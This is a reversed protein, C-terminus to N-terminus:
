IGSLYFAIWDDSALNNNVIENLYIYLFLFLAQFGALPITNQYNKKNILKFLFHFLLSFVLSLFYFIIFNAPSFFSACALLFLIDGWGIKKELQSERKGKVTLIIKLLLYQLFLFGINMAFNKVVIELSGSYYFSYLLGGVALIPFLVWTVSRTKLDQYFILGGAVGVLPLILWQM